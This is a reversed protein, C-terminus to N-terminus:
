KKAEKSAVGAYEWTKEIKEKVVIPLPVYHLQTAIADGHDFGWRIFKIVAKSDQSYVPLLIYTTSVIPWSDDDKTNILDVSYNKAHVWDAAKAAAKISNENISVFSGSINKLQATNLHNQLAYAYEVYGIGGEINKVTSAVSGNGRGGMGVPWAISTNAGFNKKWDASEKSLYSTFVQTTGSGDARYIPAIDISPLTIDKNLGAIKPDNWKTIKGQYINAIIDGTLRLQNEKIGPINVVVAVGGIATPFQLLNASTLQETSTPMDLAGFNVTKAIVQNKGASSGLAQYNVKIDIEKSASAAWNQYLPAAFSSGVGTINTINQAKVSPLCAAFFAFSLGIMSFTILNKQYVFPM